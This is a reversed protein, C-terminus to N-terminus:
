GHARLGHSGESDKNISIAAYHVVNKTDGTIKFSDSQKLVEINGGIINSLSLVAAICGAGCSNLRGKGTEEIIERWKKNKILELFQDQENNDRNNKNEKNYNIMNASVVFLITDLREAFTVQLANALIRVNQPNLEGLLVPVIDAGPFLHQIFPLQVELCHEELHVIDNRYIKTSCTHLNEIMEQNVATSGIPTQFILSQPLLIGDEPERHVPGLLVVTKIDRAAAAKFAAAVLSGTYQYAAHPSIIAAAKGKANDTNKLLDEVMNLLPSKESPYFIGDVIPARM